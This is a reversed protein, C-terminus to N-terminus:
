RVCARARLVCRSPRRLERDVQGVCRRGAARLSIAAAHTRPTREGDKATRTHTGCRIIRAQTVVGSLSFLTQLDFVVQVRVAIARAPYMYGTIRLPAHHQKCRVWPQADTQAWKWGGPSADLGVPDATTNSSYRRTSM